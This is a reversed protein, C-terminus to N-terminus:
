RFKYNRTYCNFGQCPNQCIIVSDCFRDFYQCCFRSSPGFQQPIKRQRQRVLSILNGCDSTSCTFCGYSPREASVTRFLSIRNRKLVELLHHVVSVCSTRNTRAAHKVIFLMGKLPACHSGHEHTSNCVGKVIGM